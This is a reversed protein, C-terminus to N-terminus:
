KKRQIKGLLDKYRSHLEFDQLLEKHNISPPKSLLRRALKINELEIRMNEKKRAFYNM